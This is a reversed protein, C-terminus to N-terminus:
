DIEIKTTTNKRKATITLIGNRLKATVTDEDANYPFSYLGSRSKNENEASIRVLGLDSNINIEDKEFGPMEVNLVYTDDVLDFGAINSNFVSNVLNILDTRM